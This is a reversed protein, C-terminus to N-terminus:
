VVELGHGFRELTSIHSRVAELLSSDCFLTADRGDLAEIMCSEIANFYFDVELGNDRFLRRTNFGYIGKFGISGDIIGPGDEPSVGVLKLRGSVSGEPLMKSLLQSNTKPYPAEPRGRITEVTSNVSFTHPVALGALSVQERDSFFPEPEGSYILNGKRLVHIEEAWTYALDVDHTSIIVTTGNACLQDVLEIVELSIQPDLGATPEDLILVKPEVALAGAIAVRKRQGYSLQTTPRCRYEEMGVKFLSDCIRREVEDRELGMNMPGFAIDEEVTASFIQEDPNQVVVCIDSRLKCLEDKSYDIPRGEYLVEGEKPKFIGNFHYFLTSKGAGNAGLIATKVGKRVRVNVDNLSPREQRSNYSYSLGKTEFLVEEM